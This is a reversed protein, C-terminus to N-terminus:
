KAGGKGTATAKMSAIIPEHCDCAKDEIKQFVLGCKSCKMIM